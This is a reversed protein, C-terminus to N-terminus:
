MQAMVPGHTGCKSAGLGGLFGQIDGYKVCWGGNGPEMGNCRLSVNCFLRVGKGRSVCYEGSMKTLLLVM